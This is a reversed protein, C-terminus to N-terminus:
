EGTNFRCHIVLLFHLIEMTKCLKIAKKIDIKSARDGAKSVEHSSHAIKKKDNM